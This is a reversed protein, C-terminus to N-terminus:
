PLALRQMGQLPEAVVVDVLPPANMAEATARAVGRAKVLRDVSVVVFALGLLAACIIAGRKLRAGTDPDFGASVGDSEGATMGAAYAAGCVEGGGAMGGGRLRRRACTARTAGASIGDARVGADRLDRVAARRDGRARAAREARRGRRGRDGDAGHRS